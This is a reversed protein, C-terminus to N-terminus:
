LVSLIFNMNDTMAAADAPTMANMRNEPLSKDVVSSVPLMLALIVATAVAYRQRLWRRDNWRRTGEAVGDLLQRVHQRRSATSVEEIIENLKKEDM